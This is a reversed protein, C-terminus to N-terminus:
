VVSQRVLMVFGVAIHITLIPLCLLVVLQLVLPPGWFSVYFLCDYLFPYSVVAGEMLNLREYHDKIM